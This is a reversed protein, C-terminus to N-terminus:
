LLTSPRAVVVVLFTTPHVGFDNSLLCFSFSVFTKEKKKKKKGKDV